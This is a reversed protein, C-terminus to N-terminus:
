PIAKGAPSGRFILSSRAKNVLVLVTQPRNIFILYIFLGEVPLVPRTKVKILLSESGPM